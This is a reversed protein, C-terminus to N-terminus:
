IAAPCGHMQRRLSHEQYAAKYVELTQQACRDWTFNEAQKRGEDILHSRLKSDTIARFMAAAFANVDDLPTLIAALGTGERISSTDTAVVPVGYAMAELTVLTFGEYRTPLAFLSAQKYLLPLEWDELYGLLQVHEAVGLEQAVTIVEETASERPGALVLKHSLLGMERLRAYAHILFPINKRPQIAGVFLVYHKPLKFRRQMDQLKNWAIEEEPVTDGGGYIVRIRDSSFGLREVDKKTNRSLAIVRAANSLAHQTWQRMAADMKEGHVNMQFYALDHITVVKPIRDCSPLFHNPGHFVDIRDRILIRPLYHDWWVRPREYIWNTPFRVPRARFNPSTPCFMLSDARGLVPSAYYLLYSNSCDQAALANVLRIVHKGIGTPNVSCAVQVYIGVRM